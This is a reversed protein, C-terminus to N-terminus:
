ESKSIVRTETERERERVKVIERATRRAVDSLIDLLEDKETPSTHDDPEYIALTGVSTKQWDESGGGGAMESCSM